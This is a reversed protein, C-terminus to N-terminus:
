FSLGGAQYNPASSPQPASGATPEISSYDQIDTPADNMPDRFAPIGLANAQTKGITYMLLGSLVHGNGMFTDRTGVSTSTLSSMRMPAELWADASLNTNMGFDELQLNVQCEGTNSYRVAVTFDGVVPVIFMAVNKEFLTQFTQVASVLTQRAMTPDNPPAALYTDDPAVQFTSKVLENQKIPDYSTYMFSISSLGTDMALGIISSAIFSSYAVKPNSIDQPIVDYRAQESVHQVKVQLGGNYVRDLEGITFLGTADVGNTQTPCGITMQSMKNTFGVKYQDIDDAPALTDLGSLGDPSFEQTASEKNQIDLGNLIKTMHVGPTKLAVPVPSRDLAPLACAGETSARVDGDDYHEMVTFPTVLYLDRNDAAMSMSPDIIDDSVMIRTKQRAGMSNLIMGSNMIQRSHVMLRCNENIAGGPGIPEELCQGTMISTNFGHAQMVSGQYNNPTRIFLLFTWMMSAVDMNLSIGNPDPRICSAVEESSAIDARRFADSMTDGGGLLKDVARESFAYVYPRLVQTGYQRPTYLFLIAVPQNGGVDGGNILFPNLNDM